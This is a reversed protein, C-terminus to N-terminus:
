CAHICLHPPLATGPGAEGEGYATSGHTRASDLDIHGQQQHAAHLQALGDQRLDEELAAVLDALEADGGTGGGNAGYLEAHALGGGAGHQAALRPGAHGADGHCSYGHAHVGSCASASCHKNLGGGAPIAFPTRGAPDPGLQQGPPYLGVKVQQTWPMSAARRSGHPENGAAAAQAPAWMHQPSSLQATYAADMSRGHQTWAADLGQDLSRGPQTWVAELGQDLSRGPQAWGTPGQWAGGMLLGDLVPGAAAWQSPPLEARQSGAQAGMGGAAAWGAMAATPPDGGVSSRASGGGGAGVVTTGPGLGPRCLGAAPAASGRGAPSQRQRKGGGQGGAEPGLGRLLALAGGGPDGEPLAALGLIAGSMSATRAARMVGESLGGQQQAQLHAHLPQRALPEGGAPPLQAPLSGGGHPSAWSVRGPAAALRHPGGPAPGGAFPSSQWRALHHTSGGDGSGRAGNSGSVSGALLLAQLGGSGYAHAAAHASGEFPTQSRSGSDPSVSRQPDGGALAISAISSSRGSQTAHQWAAGSASNPSGLAAAWGPHSGGGGNSDRVSLQRQLEQVQAQAQALAQAQAQALAQAQAQAFAQAQAQAQAQAPAQAQARAQANAQAQAWAQEHARAQAQAQVHAQAQAQAQAEPQHSFLHQFAGLGDPASSPGRSLAALGAPM